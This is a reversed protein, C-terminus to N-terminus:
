PRNDQDFFEAANMGPWALLYGFELPRGPKESNKLALRYTLWKCGGYLAFAMAWM